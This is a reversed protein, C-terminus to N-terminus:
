QEHDAAELVLPQSPQKFIPFGFTNPSILDLLRLVDKRNQVASSPRLVHVQRAESQMAQLTITVIEPANGDPCVPADNEAKLFAVGVINIQDVVVLLNEDDEDSLSFMCSILGFRSRKTRFRSRSGM